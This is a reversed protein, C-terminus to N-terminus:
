KNAEIRQLATTIRHIDQTARHETHALKNAWRIARDWDGIAAQFRGNNRVVWSHGERRIALKM